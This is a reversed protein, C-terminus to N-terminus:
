APVSSATSGAVVDTRSKRLFWVFVALLILVIFGFLAASLPIGKAPKQVVLKLNSVVSPPSPGVNGLDTISITNLGLDFGNLSVPAGYSQPALLTYTTSDNNASFDNNLSLQFVATPGAFIKFNRSGTLGLNTDFFTNIFPNSFTAATLLFDTPTSEFFLTGILSPAGVMPFGTYSVNYSFSTSTM